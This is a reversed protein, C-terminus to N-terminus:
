TASEVVLRCCDALTFNKLRDIALRVSSEALRYQLEPENKGVIEWWIDASIQFYRHFEAIKLSQMKEVWFLRSITRFVRFKALTNVLFKNLNLFGRLILM